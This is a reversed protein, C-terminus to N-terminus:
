RNLPFPRQDPCTISLTSCIWLFFFFFVFFFIEYSHERAFTPTMLESFPTTFISWFQRKKQKALAHLYRERAHSDDHLLIMNAYFQYVNLLATSITIELSFFNRRFDLFFVPRSFLHSYITSIFSFFINLRNLDITETRSLRAIYRGCRWRRVTSLKTSETHASHGDIPRTFLKAFTFLRNKYLNPLRIFM